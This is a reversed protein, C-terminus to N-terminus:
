PWRRGPTVPASTSVALPVIVQPILGPWGSETLLSKECSCDDRYIHLAESHLYGKIRCNQEKSLLVQVTQLDVGSLLRSMYLVVSESVFEM